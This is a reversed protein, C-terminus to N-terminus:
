SVELVRSDNLLQAFPYAPLIGERRKDPPKPFLHDELLIDLANM